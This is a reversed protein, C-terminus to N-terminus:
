DGTAPDDAMAKLEQAIVRDLQRGIQESWGSARHIVEGDANVVWYTPNRRIKFLGQTLYLNQDHVQPWPLNNKRLFRELTSQKQDNSISLLVFPDDQHRKVLRRLHPIAAVCPACWTGWFDLVVVKGRLSEDSVTQGALTRVSFPPVLDIRARRPNEIYRKAQQVLGNPELAADLSSDAVFAELAAVGEADRELALLALGLNFKVVLLRGESLELIRRFSQVAGELSATSADGGAYLGTGLQSHVAIEENFTRVLPLAQRALDAATSFQRLKNHARAQGILIELRPEGAQKAAKAYLKAATKFDGEQAMDQAREFTKQWSGIALLPAGLSWLLLGLVLLPPRRIPQPRM